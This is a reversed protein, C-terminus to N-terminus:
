SCMRYSRDARSGDWEASLFRRVQKEDHSLAHFATGLSPLTARAIIPWNRVKIMFKHTPAIERSVNAFPEIVVGEYSMSFLLWKTEELLRIVKVLM